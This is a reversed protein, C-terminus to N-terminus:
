CLFIIFKIRNNRRLINTTMRLHWEDSYVTERRGEEFDARSDSDSNGNSNGDSNSDSNSSNNRAVIASSLAREGREGLATVIRM